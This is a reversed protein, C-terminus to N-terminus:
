FPVNAKPVFYNDLAKVTAEFTASEADAALPSTLKRFTWEPSMYFCLEKRNTM